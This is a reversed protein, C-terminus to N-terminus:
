LRIKATMHFFKLGSSFIAFNSFKFIEFSNHLCDLEEVYNYSYSYIDAQAMKIMGLYVSDVTEAIKEAKTFELIAKTYEEQYYYAVGLYYLARVLKKKEGKKSYYDVAVKAISDNSVDIFNKDLAMAHLLAHHARDRKTILLDRNMTDLHSLASDPHEMIYSEIDNLEIRINNRRCGSFILFIFFFLLFVKRNM